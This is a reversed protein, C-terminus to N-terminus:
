AAWKWSALVSAALDQRDAESVTDSFSFTVVYSVGDHIANFQDTLYEAGAQTQSSSIAVAEDGDIEVRDGVTVDKSGAGELEATLGDELQDLDDLPAPDLRIVNVNDSFGDTDTLDAAFSDTQETGPIDQEPTSWGEPVAYSYGTGEITDGSPTEAEDAPADSPAASTSDKAPAEEGESDSGGCGALTLTSVIALAAVRRTLIRM